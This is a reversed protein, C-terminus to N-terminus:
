ALEVFKYASTPAIGCQRYLSPVEYAAKILRRARACLERMEDTHVYTWLKGAEIWKVVEGRELPSHMIMDISPLPPWGCGIVTEIPWSDDVIMHRFGREHAQIVRLAQSQHDDFFCLGTGVRDCRVASQMWDEEHYTVGPTRYSLEQLNPDFAHVKARPCASALFYSSQGKYVGSEVVLEPDLCRAMLFLNVGSPFNAGYVNMTIPSQFFVTRFEDVLQVISEVDPSRYTQTGQFFAHIARAILVNQREIMKRDLLFLSVNKDAFRKAM